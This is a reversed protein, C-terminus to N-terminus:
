PLVFPGCEGKSRKNKGLGSQEVLPQVVRQTHLPQMRLRQFPLFFFLSFSYASDICGISFPLWSCVDCLDSVGERVTRDWQSNNRTSRGGVCITYFCNPLCSPLLFLIIVHHKCLCGIFEQALYESAAGEVVM